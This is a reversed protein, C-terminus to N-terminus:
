KVITYNHILKVSEDISNFMLVDIISLGEIFHRCPQAYKLLKNQLFRVQTSNKTFDNKIFINRGAIPNVYESVGLVECIKSAWQGPHEIDCININMESFTYIPCGLGLYDNIMELANKNFHTLTSSPTDLIENFLTMVLDYYPAICKYHELQRLLKTKWEHSSSLKVDKIICKYPPKIVGARIYQWEIHNPKLIRNRSMWGKRDYEVVDFIIFIDAYAMLSFYGLYPFFYPQM